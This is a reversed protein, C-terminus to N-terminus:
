HKTTMSSYTTACVTQLTSMIGLLAQMVAFTEAHASGGYPGSGKGGGGQQVRRTLLSPRRQDIWPREDVM